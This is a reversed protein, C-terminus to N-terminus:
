PWLFITRKRYYIKVINSNVRRQVYRRVLLSQVYKLDKYGGGKQPCWSTLTNLNVDGSEMLQMSIAPDNSTLGWIAMNVVFSILHYIGIVQNWCNCVSPKFNGSELLQMSIGPHFSARTPRTGRQPLTGFM